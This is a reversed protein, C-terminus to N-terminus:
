TNSPRKKGLEVFKYLQTVKLVYRVPAEEKQPKLEKPKLRLVVPSSLRDAQVYEKEGKATVNSEKGRLLKIQYFHVQLFHTTKRLIM